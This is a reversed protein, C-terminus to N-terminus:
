INISIELTITQIGERAEAKNWRYITRGVPFFCCLPCFIRIVLRLVFPSPSGWGPLFFCFCRIERNVDTSEAQRRYQYTRRHYAATMAITIPIYPNAESVLPNLVGKM